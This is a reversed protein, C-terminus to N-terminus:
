LLLSLRTRLLAANAARIDSLKAARSPGQTGTATHSLIHWCPQNLFFCPPCTLPAGAGASNEAASKLHTRRNSLITAQIGLSESSLAQTEHVPTLHKVPSSPCLRGQSRGEMGPKTSQRSYQHWLHGQQPSRYGTPSYLPGSLRPSM